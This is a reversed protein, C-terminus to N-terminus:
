QGVEIRARVSEIAFSGAFTKSTATITFKHIRRYFSGLRHWRYRNGTTYNDAGHTVYTVGGDDSYSLEISVSKGLSCSLELESEFVRRGGGDFAPLVLTYVAFNTAGEHGHDGDVLQYVDSGLGADGTNLGVFVYKSGGSSTYNVTDAYRLVGSSLSRVHWTGTTISYLMVFNNVSLSYFQQGAIAHISGRVDIATTVNGNEYTRSEQIGLFKREVWETSIPTVRYGDMRYVRMDDGLFFVSSENKAISGVAFVGREVLGPQVRSFPFPSAGTNQWIEIHRKGFLYLERNISMCGVLTDSLADATSFSLAGWTTPDDLNSIYFEDTGVRTAITYGDQYTVGGFDGAPPTIAATAGTTAVYENGGGDVIVIKNAGAGVMQVPNSGSVTGVSTITTGDYRRLTTNRVYWVYDGHVTLGRISGSGAGLAGEHAPAAMVTYPRRSGPPSPALYMNVLEADSVFRSGSEGETVALPLDVWEGM